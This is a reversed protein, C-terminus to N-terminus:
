RLYKGPTRVGNTTLATRDQMALVDGEEIATGPALKSQIRFLTEWDDVEIPDAVVDEPITLRLLPMWAWACLGTCDERPAGIRSRPLYVIRRM